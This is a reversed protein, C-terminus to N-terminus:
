VINPFVFQKRQALHLGGVAQRDLHNVRTQRVPVGAGVEEIGLYTDSFGQPHAIHLYVPLCGVPVTMAVVVVRLVVVHHQMHGFHHVGLYPRGVAVRDWLHFQGDRLRDSVMILFQHGCVMPHRAMLHNGKETREGHMPPQTRQQYLPQLALRLGDAFPQCTALTRPLGGVEGRQGAVVSEPDVAIGKLSPGGGNGQMSHVMVAVVEELYFGDEHSLSTQQLGFGYGLAM